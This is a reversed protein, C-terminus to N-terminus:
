FHALLTILTCIEIKRKSNLKPHMIVNYSKIKNTEAPKQQIRRTETQNQQNKNKRSTETPNQQIRSTETQNQQNRDSEAPQQQNRNTEAPNQQIRSTEALKQQIRSTRTPKQQNVSDLERWECGLGGTELKPLEIYKRNCKIGNM